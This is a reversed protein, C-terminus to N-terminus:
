SQRVRLVPRSEIWARLSRLGAASEPVNFFMPMGLRKAERHEGRAGESFEWGYVFIVADCRRMLELTAPSLFAALDHSAFRLNTHPCVPMARLRAVEYALDEARRVNREIALADAATYPGAIYVCPVVIERASAPEVAPNPESPPPPPGLLTSALAPPVIPTQDASM